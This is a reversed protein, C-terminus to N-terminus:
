AIPWREWRVALALRATKLKGWPQLIQPCVYNHPGLFVCQASHLKARWKKANSLRTMLLSYGSLHALGVPNTNRLAFLRALFSAAFALCTASTHGPAPTTHPPHELCSGSRPPQSPPRTRCKCYRSLLQIRIRAFACTAQSRMITVYSGLRM